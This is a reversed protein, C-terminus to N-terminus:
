CIWLLVFVAFHRDIEVGPMGAVRRFLVPAVNSM